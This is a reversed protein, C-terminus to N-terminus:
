KMAHNRIVRGPNGVVTVGDPVDGIVVAGAGIVSMAGVAVGQILVAGTGIHAEDGIRVNGSLVAGPAIHVHAGIECDHDVVSRTNVICNAGLRSGSQVVVGAMIQVGDAMEVDGAIVASPHVISAFEYGRRRFEEYIKKRLATSRASGVGNVLRIEGVDYREIEEDGGLRAISLIKSKTEEPDVFGLVKRRQPILTSILVKAHGGGGIVIVPLQSADHGKIM